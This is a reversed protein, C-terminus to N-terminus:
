AFNGMRFPANYWTQLHVIFSFQFFIVSHFNNKQKSKSKLIRLPFVKWDCSWFMAVSLSRPLNKHQFWQKQRALPIVLTSATNSQLYLLQPQKLRWSKSSDRQCENLFEPSSLNVSERIPLVIFLRLSSVKCECFHSCIYHMMCKHRLRHHTAITKERRSLWKSCRKSDLYVSQRYFMTFRIAFPIVM